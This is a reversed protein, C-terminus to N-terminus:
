DVRIPDENKPVRVAGPACNHLAARVFLQRADWVAHIAPHEAAMAVHLAGFVGGGRGDVRECRLFAGQCHQM